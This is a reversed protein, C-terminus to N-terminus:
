RKKSTIHQFDCPRHVFFCPTPINVDCDSVVAARERKMAASLVTTM